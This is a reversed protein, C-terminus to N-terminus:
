QVIFTTLGQYIDARPFAPVTYRVEFVIEYEGRGYGPDAEIRKGDPHVTLGLSSGQGGKIWTISKFYLQAPINEGSNLGELQENLVEASLLWGTKVNPNKLQITIDGSYITQPSETVSTDPLRISTPATLTIATHASPVVLLSLLALLPLPRFTPRQARGEFLFRSSPPPAARGRAAGQSRFAYEESLSNM